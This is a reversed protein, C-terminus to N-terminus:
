KTPFPIVKAKHVRLREKRPVERIELHAVWAKLPKGARRIMENALYNSCTETFTEGDDALIAVPPKPLLIDMLKTQASALPEPSAKVGVCCRFFFWCAERTELM